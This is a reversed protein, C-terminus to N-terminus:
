DDHKATITIRDFRGKKMVVTVLPEDYEGCTDFVSVRAEPDYQALAELLDAVTCSRLKKEDMTM